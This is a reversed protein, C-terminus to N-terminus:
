NSTLFEILKKILFLNNLAFNYDFVKVYEDINLRKSLIYWALNLSAIILFFDGRFTEEFTVTTSCISQTYYIAIFIHFVATLFLFENYKMQKAIKM